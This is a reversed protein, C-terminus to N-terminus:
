LPDDENRIPIYDDEHVGSMDDPSDLTELVEPKIKWPKEIPRGIVESSIASVVRHGEVTLEPLKVRRDKVSEILNILGCGSRDGSGSGLIALHRPLNSVDLEKSITKTGVGEIGFARQNVAINLLITFTSLAIKPLIETTLRFGPLPGKAIQEAIDSSSFDKKLGPTFDRAFSEGKPSLVVNPRKSTGIYKIDLLGLGTGGDRGPSLKDIQHVAQIYELGALDAVDHYSLGNREDKAVISLLTRCVSVTLNPYM